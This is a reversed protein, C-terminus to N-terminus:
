LFGFFLGNFLFCFFHTLSCSLVTFVMQVFVNLLNEMHLNFLLDLFYNVLRAIVGANDVMYLTVVVKAAGM